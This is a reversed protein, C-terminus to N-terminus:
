EDMDNLKGGLNNHAREDLYSLRYAILIETEVESASGQAISLFRLFERPSKRGAGEAINAAISVSARRLQNTLGFREHTPFSETVRYIEVTFDVAKGLMWNHPAAKVKPNCHVIVITLITIRSAKNAEAATCM